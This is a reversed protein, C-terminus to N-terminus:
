KWKREEAPELNLFEEQAINTATHETSNFNAEIEPLQYLILM